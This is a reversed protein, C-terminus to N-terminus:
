WSFRIKSIILKNILKAEDFTAPGYYFVKHKFSTMGAILKTLDGPNIRKLDDSSIVDRFASKQGYIGYNL